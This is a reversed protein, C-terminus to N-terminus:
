AEDAPVCTGVTTIWQETVEWSDKVRQQFGNPWVWIQLALRNEKDVTENIKPIYITATILFRAWATLHKHEGEWVKSPGVSGAGCPEASIVPAAWAARFTEAIVQTGPQWESWFKWNRTLGYHYSPNRIEAWWKGCGMEACVKYPKVVKEDLTMSASAEGGSPSPAPAPIIEDPVPGVALWEAAEAESLGEPPISVPAEEAESEAKEREAIELEDEPGEILVPVKYSTEWGAGAIIPYVFSGSHFEIKLTLVNGNVELSTPVEKGTADHAQEPTILFARKGSEYVVEAHESDALRLVQGEYLQVNWSYKEPSAESRIAEFITVGNYDPRVITDAQSRSNASVAAVGEVISTTSAETAVPAITTEGYPSTITVGAAPNTTMTTLDPAGTSTIQSGVQKLEPNDGGEIQEPELLEENPAIPTSDTTEEVAELTDEAEGASIHGEPDVNITWSRKRTNGAGDTAILEAPHAGGSYSSMDITESLAFWKPCGGEPCEGSVSKVVTGDIKLQVTSVGYGNEDTALAEYPYKKQETWGSPMTYLAGLEAFAPPTTDPAINFSLSKTTKHGTTDTATAAVTHSGSSPNNLSTTWARATTCKAILCGGPTTSVANGDVKIEISAIQDPDTSQNWKHVRNNGKDTVFIAGGAGFAIGKPETFQANGTGTAGFKAVFGGAANFIEVRNNTQDVVYIRGTPDVGVGAPSNMQGDGSGVSGVSRIFKGESSFEQMPSTGLSTVWVNGPGDVALGRPRDITAGSTNRVFRESESSVTERFEAVRDGEFDGVWLMGNPAIAIAEPAVLETGKSEGAAATGFKQMFEGKSNFEQLRHNGTDAVWINGAPTVAIGWPNSFQGNGSGASGFQGLYEGGEGFKEIRNNARDVVWVNGKGDSALGRPGNLQGTGSGTAGFASIFSPTSSSMAAWKHVRNNGKDTVFIAGGAGFAIGKPETFQANGTGTAGFKAVFGGAANFIEVRNNTQDVVYIRGTPDVGVGAPSNMQGDGSGVSGVSRIFKGESSFEQMPSTGLSTVWVNGPGDVALGRPRDITAGSTNRVFRESESSVTERFEAVRDGEFDGVWLMGNPAIAIAEPAVLETGKSEGAAATGFKQMFEGKSNFEQLRHNGTDAVWINGAPTVAIGWPNSFQGNGSGASGFQGLYEGGEGFKEIRNNARDVVWVNGKGDSALGRPGNLQGTGSGTAGFASIFSPTTFSEPQGFPSAEAQLTYRPRTSGLTAQETLTGSLALGPPAPTLNINSIETATLGVGDTATVSVEHPGASYKETELTWSGDLACDKTGCGPAEEKAVKGDVKITVKSVGSQLDLDAHTWRAVRHNGADAVALANNPGFSLGGAEFFQNSAGGASGFKRLYSGDPKFIQVRGNNRETIGIHGAPSVDIGVIGNIQGDGSGATGFEFLPKGAPDLELVKGLGGDAIWVNGFKDTAVGTPSIVATGKGNGGPEKGTTILLTTIPNESLKIVRHLGIDTVWIVGGPGSAIAYPESAPDTFKAKRQFVGTPSFAQVRDNGMDAVWVTGDPAIDIGRPDNFQGDGSGTSGFELVLKGEKDYKLVRNNLRDVTYISGDQAMAVGMPRELQGAEKGAAGVPSLATAAADDGDKATYNLSYSPLKTGVVGQETLSGSLALTPANHDVKVELWSTSSKNGVPDEAILGVYGIGTPLLGPQYNLAQHGPESSKWTLPCAANGVGVCGNLATWTHLRNGDLGPEESVAKIAYVGLGTDSATFGIPPAEQNVWQTQPVPIPGSPSGQDGLEVTAAGVWVRANSNTTSETANISVQATKAYIDPAPNGPPPNQFEYPYTHDHVGHQSQGTHTYYTLWKSDTSDWIGMFLYPSPSSGLAEWDMDTLKLSKIYSTPAPTEKFYRPVSYMVAAYNGAEQALQADVHIGPQVTNAGNRAELHWMGGWNKEIKKISWEEVNNCGCIGANTNKAHWEYTQFLPDVLIPLPTSSDPEVHVKLTNGSVELDVPVAEGAADIATPAPVSLLLEEGAQVKAGGGETGELSADPPLSFRYTSLNPSDTSRLQTMTEVGTPTPSIALDADEAVNPYFAVSGGSVTASRDPAVGAVEISIGIEPFEIEENLDGPIRTKVLPSVSELTGDHRELSLDLIDESDGVQLPVTSDILSANALEPPAEIPLLSVPQAEAEPMSEAAQDGESQPAAVESGTGTEEEEPTEIGAAEPEPLVAVYPSLLTAEQLQDYVGAVGEVSRGFVGNLLELAEERQLGEMPRDEAAAPETLAPVAQDSAGSEIATAVDSQTPLLEGSEESPEAAALASASLVVTSLLAVALILMSFPRRSFGFTTQVATSLRPSKISSENERAKRRGIVFV